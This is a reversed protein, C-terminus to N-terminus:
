GSLGHVILSHDDFEFFSRKVDPLTARADWLITRGPATGPPAVAKTAQWIRIRGGDVEVSTSRFQATASMETLTPGAVSFYGFLLIAAPILSVAAMLSLLRGPQQAERSM